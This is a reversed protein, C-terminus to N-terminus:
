NLSQIFREADKKSLIRLIVVQQKDIVYFVRYKDIRLRYFNSAKGKIKKILKGKPFPSNELVRIEKSIKICINDSFRNLDKQAQPSLIIKFAKM